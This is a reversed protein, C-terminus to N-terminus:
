GEDEAHASRARAITAKKPPPTDSISRLWLLMRQVLMGVLAMALAGAMLYSV